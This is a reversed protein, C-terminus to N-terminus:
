TRPDNQGAGGTSGVGIDGVLDPNGLLHDSPPACAEDLASEIAQKIFRSRTSRPFDGVLFDFFGHPQRQLALRAVGRWPASAGHRFLCAQALCRNSTDPMCESQLRVAAFCELQGRVRQEDLFHAVDDPRTVPRYSGRRSVSRPPLSHDPKCFVPPNLRDDCRWLTGDRCPPIPRHAFLVPQRQASPFPRFQPSPSSATLGQLLNRSSEGSSRGHHAHSDDPGASERFRNAHATGPHQRQGLPLGDGSPNSDTVRGRLDGGPDAPRGGRDTTLNGAVATSGAATGGFGVRTSPLLRDAWPRCAPSCARPIEPYIGITQGSIGSLHGHRWKRCDM